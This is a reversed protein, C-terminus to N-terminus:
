KHQKQQSVAMKDLEQGSYTQPRNTHSQLWVLLDSKMVLKRGGIHLTPFDARNLLNYAGSKSLHLVEALQSVDLVDPTDEFAEKNM